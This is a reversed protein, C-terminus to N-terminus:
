PQGKTMAAYEQCRPCLKDKTGPLLPTQCEACDPYFRKDWAVIIALTAVAAACASGFGLLFLIM